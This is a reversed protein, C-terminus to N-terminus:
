TSGGSSTIWSSRSTRAASACRRSCARARRQAPLLPRGPVARRRDRGGSRPEHERHPPRRGTAAPHRRGAVGAEGRHRAAAQGPPGRAARRDRRPLAHRRARRRVPGPEGARRQHLRRARPRLAPERAPFGPHRRLERGRAARPPPPEGRPHRPRGAGQRHRERRDGARQQSRVRVPRDAGARTAHATSTGILLEESSAPPGSARRPARGGPAAAPTSPPAARLARPRAARVAEPPLRLRGQPAGRHGDGGHCPRDDPDGGRGPEAPPLAGPGGARQRGAHDRRGRHRRIGAAELRTLAEQGSGATAVRYGENELFLGLTDQTTSEDDVVLISATM